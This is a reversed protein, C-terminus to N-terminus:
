DVASRAFAGFKSRAVHGVAVSLVFNNLVIPTEAAAREGQELKGLIMQVEDLIAKHEAEYEERMACGAAAFELEEDHFHKQLAGHLRAPLCAASLAIEACCM